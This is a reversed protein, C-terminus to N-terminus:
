QHEGGLQLVAETNGTATLLELYALQYDYLANKAASEAQMQSLEAEALDSPTASGLKVRDQMSQLNIQEKALLATQLEYQKAKLQMNAWLTRLKEQADELAERESREASAVDAIANSVNLQNSAATNAGGLTAAFTTTVKWEGNNARLSATFKSDENSAHTRTIDVGTSLTKTDTDLSVLPKIDFTLPAKANALADQAALLALEAQRVEPRNAASALWQDLKEAAPPQWTPETWQVNTTASDLSGTQRDLNRWALQEQRQKATLDLLSVNLRQRAIDVDPQALRGVQAMAEARELQLSNVSVQKEAVKVDLAAKGVNYYAQASQMLANERALDLSATKQAVNRTAQLLATQAQLPSGFPYRFAWGLTIEGWDHSIDGSKISDSIGAATLSITQGLAPSQALEIKTGLTASPNHQPDLVFSWKQNSTTATVHWGLDAAADNQSQVATQLDREAKTLSPSANLTQQLVTNLTLPAANATVSEILMTGLIALTTIALTRASGPRKGEICAHM